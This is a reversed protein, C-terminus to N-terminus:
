AAQRKAEREQVSRLLETLHTLAGVGDDGDLCDKALARLMEEKLYCDNTRKQPLASLVSQKFVFILNEMQNIIKSTPGDNSRPQNHTALTARNLDNAMDLLAVLGSPPVQSLDLTLPQYLNSAVTLTQWADDMKNCTVNLEVSTTM